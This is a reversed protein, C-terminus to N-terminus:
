HLFSEELGSGLHKRITTLVMESPSSNKGPKLDRHVIEKTHLYQVAKLISKMITSAEEDTLKAHNRRRADILHKLQGGQVLEM